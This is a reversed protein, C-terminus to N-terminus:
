THDAEVRCCGNSCSVWISEPITAGLGATDKKPRSGSPTRACDPPNMHVAPKVHQGDDCSGRFKMNKPKGVTGDNKIPYVAVGRPEGDREGIWIYGTEGKKLGLPGVPRGGLITIKAVIHGDGNGLADAWEVGNAEMMPVIKIKVTTAGGCAATNASCDFDHEKVIDGAPLQDGFKLSGFYPTFVPDERPYGKVGKPKQPKAAVSAKDANTDAVVPASEPADGAPQCGLVVTAVLVVGFSCALRM